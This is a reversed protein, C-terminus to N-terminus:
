RAAVVREGGYEKNIKAVPLVIVFILSEFRIVNTEELKCFNTKREETQENKKRGSFLVFVSCKCVYFKRALMSM